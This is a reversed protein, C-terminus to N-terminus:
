KAAATRPHVAEVRDLDVYWLAGTVTVDPFMRGVLEMYNLVQRHHGTSGDATFKYDVVEIADPATWVIRDPRYNAQPTQPTPPIYITAEPCAKVGHGFWRDIYPQMAPDAFRSRLMDADAPDLGRRDAVRLAHPLDAATGVMSLTYHLLDGRRTAETDASHAGATIETDTEEVGPAGDDQFLPDLETVFKGAESLNIAFRELPEVVPQPRAAFKPKGDHEPATPKGITVNGDDDLCGAIDMLLPNDTQGCGQLAQILTRGFGFDSNYYVCLEREARTYAVYKRNLGDSTVEYAAQCYAQCLPSLPIASSKTLKVRMVPPFDKFDYGQPRQIWVSEDGPKTGELPYSGRLVHVCKFQLGKSKHITMINIADADPPVSVSLRTAVTRWWRLFGAIDHGYDTEYELIADQLGAIYASEALRVEERVRHLLITDVLTSLSSPRAHAIDTASALMDLGTDCADTAGHLARVAITAPDQGAMAASGALHCYRAIFDRLDKKRQAPTLPKDGDAPQRQVDALMRLTSIVTQVASSASLLLAEETAVQLGADILAHAIETAEIRRDCLVAIDSARYGAQLQRQIQAVCVPYQLAVTEASEKTAKTKKSPDAQPRINFFRIYAAQDAHGPAIGQVVNEYGSIGLTKSLETFLTNNFRVIGAASRWNVNEDPANGHIDLAQPGGFHDTVQHHLLSPDSNRFRYISQKEDGIILSDQNESLSNEVLPLMNNWQMVSTDQFEDILFHKLNVGMKEYVFPVNGEDTVRQLLRNTDALVLLNNDGRFQNIYGSVLNMFRYTSFEAAVANLAAVQGAIEALERMPGSIAELVRPNSRKAASGIFVNKETPGEVFSMYIQTTTEREVPWEGRSFKELRSDFAQKLDSPQYGEEELTEYIQAVLDRARDPYVNDVLNRLSDRFRNFNGKQRMWPEFLRAVQQYREDFLLNARKIIDRHVGTNRNFLNGSAGKERQDDMHQRLSRALESDLSATPDYNFTDLMLNVGETVVKDANIVVEYDGPYDLEYALARIVQQFFADITTVNFERYDALLERMARAATEALQDPRCGFFQCFDATYPSKDTHNALIDLENVIRDKMEETAKNTFTIALITSHRNHLVRGYDAHNLRYRGRDSSNDKVGLVLQLYRKTLTYTKGSGASAKYVTLM